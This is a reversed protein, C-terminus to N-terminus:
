GPLGVEFTGEIVVAVMGSDTGSTHREGPQWEAARFPSIPVRVDDDGAVWGEGTVVCFLQHAAAEHTGVIGDPPLHMVVTRAADTPRMLATLTARSDFSTIAHGPDPGFDIIRM